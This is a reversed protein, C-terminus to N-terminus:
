HSLLVPCTPAKLVHATAGGLLFERARSHGFGGMVLLDPKLETICHGFVLGIEDGGADVEHLTAGVGQIQPHLTAIEGTLAALGTFKGGPSIAISVAEDIAAGMPPTPYSEINLLLDVHTM